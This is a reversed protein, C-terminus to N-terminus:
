MWALNNYSNHLLWVLYAQFVHINYLNFSENWKQNNPANLGGYKGAGIVIVKGLKKTPIPKLRRFIGFNIFGHRELFEHIRRVLTADSDFPKEINKMANELTLQTKPDEIWMQLLRNRINLFVRHSALGNKAIEPFSSAEGSTMKDFPLRDFKLM